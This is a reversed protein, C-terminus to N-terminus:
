SGSRGTTPHRMVPGQWRYVCMAVALVMLYTGMFPWGRWDLTKLCYSILLFVLAAQGIAWAAAVLRKVLTNWPQWGIFVMGAWLLVLCPLTTWLEATVMIRYVEAIMRTSWLSRDYRIGDYFCEAIPAVFVAILWVVFAYAIVFRPKNPQPMHTFIKFAILDGIM